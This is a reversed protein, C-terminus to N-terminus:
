AGHGGDGAGGVDSRCDLPPARGTEGTGEYSGAGDYDYSGTREYSGTGEYSGAGEYPGPRRRSHRAGM